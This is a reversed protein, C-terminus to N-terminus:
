ARRSRLGLAALSLGALALTGPEPVNGVGVGFDTADLFNGVTAGGAASVSIFSFRVAHGLAVIGTGAYFGWAATGDSATTTFLVTDPDYGPLEFGGNVLGAMAAPALLAGLIPLLHRTKM